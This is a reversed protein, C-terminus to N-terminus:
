NLYNKNDRNDVVKFYVESKSVKSLLSFGAPMSYVFVQMFFSITRFKM